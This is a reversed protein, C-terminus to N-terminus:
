YYQVDAICMILSITRFIDFSHLTTPKYSVLLKKGWHVAVLDSDSPMKASFWLRKGKWLTKISCQQLMQQTAAQSEVPQILGSSQHVAEENLTLEQAVCQWTEETIREPKQTKREKEKQEKPTAVQNRLLDKGTVNYTIVLSPNLCPHLQPHRWLAPNFPTM